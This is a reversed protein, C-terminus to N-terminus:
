LARYQKKESKHHDSILEYFSHLIFSNSNESIIIFVFDWFIRNTWNRVDQSM